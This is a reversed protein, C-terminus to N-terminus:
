DRSKFKSITELLDKAHNDRRSIFIQPEDENEVMIPIVIQNIPIGTREEFMICYATTQQFYSQIYEEKKLKRSTKFDVVSLKGNWEAICDVRGAVGLHKSYLPVEQAYVLGVYSDLARKMPKFMARDFVDFKKVDLNNNLYDECMLHLNEGRQAAFKSIKNAEREGVRNRWQQIGDKSLISLVTTISPFDGEPTKYVRGKETTIAELDEFRLGEKHKFM